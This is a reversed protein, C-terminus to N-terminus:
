NDFIFEEHRPLDRRCQGLRAVIWFCNVVAFRSQVFHSLRREIEDHEIDAQGSDVAKLHQLPQPRLM